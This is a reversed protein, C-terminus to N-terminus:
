FPCLTEVECEADLVRFLIEIISVEDSFYEGPVVRGLYLDEGIVVAGVLIDLRIVPCEDFCEELRILM